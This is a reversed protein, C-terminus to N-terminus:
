RRELRMSVPRDPHLTGAAKFGPTRSDVNVRFERMMQALILQGELMSFKSEEPYKTPLSSAFKNRYLYNKMSKFPLADQGSGSFISTAFCDDMLAFPVPHLDLSDM